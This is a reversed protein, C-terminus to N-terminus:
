WEWFICRSSIIAVVLGLMSMTFSFAYYRQFGKEGKWTVSHICLHTGDIIRYLYSGADYCLYPRALYGSWFAPNAYLFVLLTTLSAPNWLCRRATCPVPLTLALLCYRLEVLYGTITVANGVTRCAPKMWKRGIGLILFSLLPFIIIMILEM